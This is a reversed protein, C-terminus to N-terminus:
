QSLASVRALACPQALARQDGVRLALGLRAPEQPSRCVVSPTCHRTDGWNNMRCTFQRLATDRASADVPETRNVGALRLALGLRALVCFRGLLSCLESALAPMCPLALAHPYLLLHPADGVFLLARLGSCAHLAPGLCALSLPLHPPLNFESQPQAWSSLSDGFGSGVSASCWSSPAWGGVPTSASNEYALADLERWTPVPFGYSFGLLLSVGGRCAFIRCSIATM